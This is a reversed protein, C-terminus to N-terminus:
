GVQILSHVLQMNLQMYKGNLWIVCICNHGKRLKEWWVRPASASASEATSKRYNSGSEGNKAPWTVVFQKIKKKTKLQFVGSASLM